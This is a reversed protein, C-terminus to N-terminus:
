VKCSHLTEAAGTGVYKEPWRRTPRLSKNEITPKPSTASETSGLVHFAFGVTRFINAPDALTAIPVYKSAAYM